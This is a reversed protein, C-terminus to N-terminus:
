RMTPCATNHLSEIITVDVLVVVSLEDGSAGFGEERHNQIDNTFDNTTAQIIVAPQSVATTNNM